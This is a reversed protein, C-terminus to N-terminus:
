NRERNSKYIERIRERNATHAVRKGGSPEGWYQHGYLDALKGFAYRREIYSEKLGKLRAVVLKLKSLGADFALRRNIETETIKEKAQAMDSRLTADAEAEVLKLEDEKAALLECVRRFLEAHECLQNDLDNKDLPVAASLEAFVREFNDAM